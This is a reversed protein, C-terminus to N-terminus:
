DIVEGIAVLEHGGRQVDCVEAGVLGHMDQYVKHLAGVWIDFMTRVLALEDMEQRTRPRRALLRDRLGEYAEIMLWLELESAGAGTWQQLRLTGASLEEALLDLYIQLGVNEGQLPEGDRRTLAGRPPPRLAPTAAKHRLQHDHSHLSADQEPVASDGSIDVTTAASYRMSARELQGIERVPTKAQRRMRPSQSTRHSSSGGGTM